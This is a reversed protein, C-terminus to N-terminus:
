ESTPMFLRELGFTIFTVIWKIAILLVLPYNGKIAFVIVAALEFICSIRFFHNSFKM